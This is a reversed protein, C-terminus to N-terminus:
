RPFTGFLFKEMIHVKGRACFKPKQLLKKKEKM